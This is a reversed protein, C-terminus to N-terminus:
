YIQNYWIAKIDFHNDERELIIEDANQEKFDEYKQWIQKFNEINIDVYKEKDHTSTLRLINEDIIEPILNETIFNLDVQEFSFLSLPIVDSEGELAHWILDLPTYRKLEYTPIGM